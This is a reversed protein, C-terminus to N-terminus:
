KEKKVAKMKRTTGKSSGISAGKPSDIDENICISRKPGKKLNGKHEAINKSIKSLPIDDDGDLDVYPPTLPTHDSLNPDCTVVSKDVSNGSATNM